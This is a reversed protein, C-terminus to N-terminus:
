PDGEPQSWNGLKTRYQTAPLSSCSGRDCTQHHGIDTMWLSGTVPEIWKSPSSIATSRMETFFPRLGQELSPLAPCDPGSQHFKMAPPHGGRLLSRAGNAVLLAGADSPMWQVTTPLSVNACTDWDLLPLRWTRSSRLHHNLMSEVNQFWKLKPAAKHITSVGANLM